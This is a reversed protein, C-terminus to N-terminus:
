RCCTPTLLDLNTEPITSFAGSQNFLFGINTVGGGEGTIYLYGRRGLTKPLRDRLVFASISRAGLSIQTSDILLLNEDLVSIDAVDALAKANTIAITSFNGQSNDFPIAARFNTAVSSETVAEVRLGNQQVNSIRGIVSLANSPSSVEVWGVKLVSSSFDPTITRIGLTPLTGTISSTLKGDINLQLPQGSPDYFNVTYPVTGFGHSTIM